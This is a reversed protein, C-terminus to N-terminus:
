IAVDRGLDSFLTFEGLFTMDVRGTAGARHKAVNVEAVGKNELNEPHYYEDRYIFMVVDSDQEIAGSERLDGLMPRKDQRQELSRNLQSVAIIPVHLERALNKLSRSIEAIEQQRNE